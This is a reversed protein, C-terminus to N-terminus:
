VAMGIDAAVTPATILARIILKAQGPLRTERGCRGGAGVCGAGISLAVVVGGATVTHKVGPPFQVSAITFTRFSALQNNPIGCQRGLVGLVPLRM